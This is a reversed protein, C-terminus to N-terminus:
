AKERPFQRLTENIAALFRDAEDRTGRWVFTCDDGLPFQLLVSKGSLKMERLLNNRMARTTGPELWYPAYDKVIKVLDRDASVAPITM